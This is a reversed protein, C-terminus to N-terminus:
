REKESLLKKFAPKSALVKLDTEEEIMDLMDPDLEVAKELAQLAENTRGLRALACARYFHGESYEADMKLATDATRLAATWNRLKRYGDAM